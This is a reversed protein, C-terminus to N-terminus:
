RPPLSWTKFSNDAVHNREFDRVSGMCHVVDTESARVLFMFPRNVILLSNLSLVPDCQSSTAELDAPHPQKGCEDVELSAKHFFGSAFLDATESIGSLDAEPTFLDKIGIGQLPVKFDVALELKFKPLYLTTDGRYCLNKLLSNLKPATLRPELTFLGNIENPVIVVMSSLGGRFPIEMARVNLDDCSATKYKVVQCMMSVERIGMSGFFCSRSMKTPNFYFQWLGKFHVANVIIMTALADLRGPSLYGKINSATVIEIWSNIRRRVNEFDKRFDVAEIAAGHTNCLLSRYSHLVPFAQDCFIRNASHVKVGDIARSDNSFFVHFYHYFPYCELTRLVASLETATNGRAGALLMSLAGCISVPSYIINGRRSRQSVLQKYVNVSFDLFPHSSISAAM